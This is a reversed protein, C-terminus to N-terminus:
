ELGRQRYGTRIQARSEDRCGSIDTTNRNVGYGAVTGYSETNLRGQTAVRRMWHM